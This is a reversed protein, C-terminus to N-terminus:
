ISIPSIGLFDCFIRLRERINSSDNTGQQSLRDFELLEFNAQEFSTEALDRNTRVKDRFDYFDKRTLQRNAVISSKFLLYYLVINGQSRLLDDRDVFLQAMKDLTASVTKSFRFVADTKGTKYNRAIADLYEKKTDSVKGITAINQEILLLRAASERHQFRKNGFSVRQSFFDHTSTERIAAVLEGGIANRKEAANLPVAENLRSFMDEILDLDDTEVCIIPLVFSDFKIRIKPHTKAIDNYSLRRLDITPDDQYDFDSSLTLLGDMFQWITELRQKGDIIAYKHDAEKRQDRTLKHLYIKPIDYGNLISDILLKKKDPTWVGGGRQYDPENNIEDRESYIRMITAHQMPFTEIYSM